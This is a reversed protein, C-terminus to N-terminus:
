KLLFSKHIKLLTQTQLFLYYNNKKEEQELIEPSSFPYPLMFQRKRSQDVVATTESSQDEIPPFIKHLQFPSTLDPIAVMGDSERREPHVLRIRPRMGGKVAEATSSM